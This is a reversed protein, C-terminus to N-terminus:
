LGAPKERRWAMLRMKEPWGWQEWYLNLDLERLGKKVKYRVLSWRVRLGEVNEVGSLPTDDSLLAPDSLKQDAWDLVTKKAWTKKQHTLTVGLTGLLATVAIAIILLVHIFGGLTYSSVLGLAWLVLLIVFITWLM